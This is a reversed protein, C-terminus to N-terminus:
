KLGLFETVKHGETEMNAVVDEYRSEIWEFGGLEGATIM